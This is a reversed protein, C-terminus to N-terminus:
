KLHLLVFDGISAAAAAAGRLVSDFAPIAREGDADPRPFFAVRAGDPRLFLNAPSSRKPFAMM